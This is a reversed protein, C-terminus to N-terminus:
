RNDSVLWVRIDLLSVGVIILKMDQSVNPFWSQELVLCHRWM